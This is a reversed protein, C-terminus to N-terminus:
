ERAKLMADALNYAEKQVGNYSQYEAMYYTLLAPLAAMAFRDRLTPKELLQKVQAKLLLNDAVTKPITEDCNCNKGQVINYIQGCVSCSPNGFVTM